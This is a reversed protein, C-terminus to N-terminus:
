KPQSSVPKQIVFQPNFPFVSINRGRLDFSSYPGNVPIIRLNRNGLLPRLGTSSFAAVMANYDAKPTYAGNTTTNDFLLAAGYGSFKGPIWSQQDNVGWTVFTKCRPQALCLSMLTQYQSNQTALHAADANNPIRIDVETLSIDLGLAALRQLNAAMESPVWAGSSGAVDPLHFHCQLGVGDLIKLSKLHGVLNYVLNSKIGMGECDYDNYVLHVNSDARRAYTFASDIYDFNNHAADTLKAWKSTDIGTVGDRLGISDRAAAENVIDWEYIKGRYHNMVTTIHTKMIKFMSDRSVNINQIFGSQQHWIFNHGRMAMGHSQAFNVVADASTYTFTGQTNQLSQWKMANECVATNFYRVLTTDYVAPSGPFTVAAGIHIGHADALTRLTQGNTTAVCCALGLTILM